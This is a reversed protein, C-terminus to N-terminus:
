FLAVHQGSEVPRSGGHVATSATFGLSRPHILRREGTCRPATGPASASRPAPALSPLRCPPSAPPPCCSWQNRAPAAPHRDASGVASRSCSLRTRPAFCPLSPQARFPARKGPGRNREEVRIASRAASASPPRHPAPPPPGPPDRRRCSHVAVAPHSHSGSSAIQTQNLWAPATNRTHHCYPPEARPTRAAP